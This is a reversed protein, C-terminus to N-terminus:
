GELSRLVTQLQQADLELLDSGSEPVASDGNVIEEFGALVARLEDASLDDLDDAVLHAVHNPADPSWAERLALGGGVVIVVAAAIRIWTEHIWRVRRVPQERLRQVVSRATAAVDLREAARTGLQRALENLRDENM